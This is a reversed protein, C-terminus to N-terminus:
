YQHRLKGRSQRAVFEFLMWYDPSAHPASGVLVCVYSCQLRLDFAVCVKGGFSGQAIIERPRSYEFNYEFFETCM